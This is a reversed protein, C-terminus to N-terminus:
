IIYNNNIFRSKYRISLNLDYKLYFISNSKVCTVFDLSKYGDICSCKGNYCHSQSISRRCYYDNRCTSGIKSFSEIM